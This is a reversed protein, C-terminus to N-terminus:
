QSALDVIHFNNCNSERLTVQTGAKTSIEVRPLYKDKVKSPKHLVVVTKRNNTLYATYNESEVVVKDAPSALTIVANEKQCFTYEESTAFSNASLLIVSLLMLLKM